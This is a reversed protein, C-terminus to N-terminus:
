TSTHAFASVDTQGAVERKENRREQKIESEIETLIPKMYKEMVNRIDFEQVRDATIAIAGNDRMRNVFSWELASVVEDVDVLIQEAGPYHMWMRGECTMGRKCNEAMAGFNPVVVPCGAAQAEVIPLGFGEGRATHLFLDAANYLLNMWTDPIVCSWYDYQPAFTINKCGYLAAVELLNEGDKFMTGTIDTHVYLLASPHEAEFAAWASFAAAFNKRSPRSMNASNMVVFYTEPALERGIV